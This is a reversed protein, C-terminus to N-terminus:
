MTVLGIAALLTIALLLPGDFGMLVTRLRQWPAPSDFIHNM